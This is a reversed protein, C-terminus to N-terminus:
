LRYGLNSESISVICISGFLFFYTAFHRTITNNWCRQQFIGFINVAM